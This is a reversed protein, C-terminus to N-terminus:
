ESQPHPAPEVMIPQPKRIDHKGSDNKPDSREVTRMREDYKGFIM